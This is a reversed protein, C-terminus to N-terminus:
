TPSLLWVSLSGFGLLAMLIPSSVLGAVGLLMGVFAWSLQGRTMAIISCILCLPVFLYGISFIGLFGFIIAFYAVILRPDPFAVPAAAADAATRRGGFRRARDRGERDAGGSRDHAVADEDALNLNIPKVPEDSM